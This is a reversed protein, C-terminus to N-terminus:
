DLGIVSNPHNIEPNSPLYVIALTDGIELIGDSITKGTYYSNRVKFEYYYTFRYGTAYVKATICIGNERLLSSEREAIVIKIICIIIIIIWVWGGFSLRRVKIKSSKRKRRRM